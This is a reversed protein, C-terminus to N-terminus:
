ITMQKSNSKCSEVIEKVLDSHVNEISKNLDPDPGRGSNVLGSGQGCIVIETVNPCNPLFDDRIFELTEKGINNWSLDLTEITQSLNKNKIIASLIQQMGSDDINCRCLNLHALKGSDKSLEEALVKAHETRYSDRLYGRMYSVFRLQLSVLNKGHEQFAESIDDPKVACMAKLAVGDSLKKVEFIKQSKM